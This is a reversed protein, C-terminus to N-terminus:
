AANRRSKLRRPGRDGTGRPRSEGDCPWRRCGPLASAASIAPTASRLPLPTVEPISFCSIERNKAASRWTRFPALSVQAFRVSWYLRAMVHRKGVATRSTSQRSVRNPHPSLGQPAHATMTPPQVTFDQALSRDRRQAADKFGDGRKCSGSRRIPIALSASCSCIRRFRRFKGSRRRSM